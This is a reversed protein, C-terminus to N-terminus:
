NIALIAPSAHPANIKNGCFPLRPFHCLDLTVNKRAKAFSKNPGTLQVHLLLIFYVM